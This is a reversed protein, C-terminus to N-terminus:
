GALECQNRSSATSLKGTSQLRSSSLQFAPFRAIRQYRSLISVRLDNASIIIQRSKGAIRGEKSSFSFHQFSVNDERHNVNPLMHM